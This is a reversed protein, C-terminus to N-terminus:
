KVQTRAARRSAPKLPPWRNIGWSLCRKAKDWVFITGFRESLKKMKDAIARAQDGRALRAQFNEIVTPYLRLKKLIGGTIEVVFIFSEDNREIEDVAYDDVFNGTSYLIPRGKYIEIGQFVHCSHGHVIDAGADILAHAFPIHKPQPRYGWNPGWHASIVLLDVKERAQRVVHFLRQARVDRVDLPVYFIGPKEGTAEWEPENDTFAIIGVKTGKQDIVAARSAKEDNEGAGAYAIDYQELIKLMEFLAECGFDLTHNNALSVAALGAAKLVAVNKSDSRFHFAKLIASWPTRCDSLVCELNAMRFDAGRFVSLTDGWPYEASQDRLMENVLRGLMIDGVFLLRM